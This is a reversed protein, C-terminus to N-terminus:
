AQIAKLASDYDPEDSIEKVLQTYIVRNDGDLVIVARACLGALPSDTIAVGYQDAFDKSRFASLMEVNNLGECLVVTNSLQAAKENFQRAAKACTGTDVSPFINLIKFKDGYDALNKESLDQAVLHFDPATEGNQPLQGALTVPDEHFTVQSM